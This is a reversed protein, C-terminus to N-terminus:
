KGTFNTGSKRRLLDRATKEVEKQFESYGVGNRKLVSYSYKNKRYDVTLLLQNGNGDSLRYKAKDFIFSKIHILNKLSSV